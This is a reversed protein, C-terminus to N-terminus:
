KYKVSIVYGNRSPGHAFEILKVRRQDLVGALCNLAVPLSESNPCEALEIFISKKWQPVPAPKTQDFYNRLEAEIADVRKARAMVEYFDPQNLM